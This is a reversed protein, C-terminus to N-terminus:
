RDFSQAFSRKIMTSILSLRYASSIQPDVPPHLDKLGLQIAEDL